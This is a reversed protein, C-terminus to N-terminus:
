FLNTVSAYHCRDVDLAVLQLYTPMNNAISVTVQEWYSPLRLFHVPSQM